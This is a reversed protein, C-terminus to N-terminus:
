TVVPLEWLMLVIAYGRCQVISNAAANCAASLKWMYSTNYISLASNHGIKTIMVIDEIRLYMFNGIMWSPGHM